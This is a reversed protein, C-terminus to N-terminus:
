NLSVYETFVQAYNRLWHKSWEIMELKAVNKNIYYRPFLDAIGVELDKDQIEVDFSYIEQFHSEIGGSPLKAELRLCESSILTSLYINSESCEEFAQKQKLDLHITESIVKAWSEIEQIARQRDFYYTNLNLIELPSIFLFSSKFRGRDRNASCPELYIQQKVKEGQYNDFWEYISYNTEKVWNGRNVM